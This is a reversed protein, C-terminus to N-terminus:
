TDGPLGPRASRTAISAALYCLSFWVATLGAAALLSPGASLRDHLSSGSDAPGFSLSTSQTDSLAGLLVVALATLLGTLTARWVGPLPYDVGRMRGSREARRAMLAPLLTGVVAAALILWVIWPRFSGFIGISHSVNSSRPHIGPGISVETAGYFFTTGFGGLTGYITLNPLLLTLGIVALATERGSSRQGIETCAYVLLTVGTITGIVLVQRWALRFVLGWRALEGAVRCRLTTAIAAGALAAVATLLLPGAFVFGPELGIRSTSYVGTFVDAPTQGFVSARTTTLALVLLSLTVALATLLTRVSLQALSASPRLRERRRALRYALVLVIATLLWVVARGQVTNTELHPAGPLTASNALHVPVGLSAGTLWVAVAFFDGPGGNVHSTATYVVIVLGLAAVAIATGLAVLGDVVAHLLDAPQVLVRWGSPEQEPPGPGLEDADGIIDM